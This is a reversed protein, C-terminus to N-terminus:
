CGKSKSPGPPVTSHFEGSRFAALMARVVDIVIPGDACATVHLKGVSSLTRYREGDCAVVGPGEFVITENPSLSAVEEIPLLCSSGPTLSARVFEQEGGLRVVVAGPEDRHIPRLRGAISSLGTSAPQAFTAVIARISAPDHVARAGLFDADILSVEVLALDDDPGGDGRPDDFRLALRKARRSLPHLELRGEAILGAVTGAATADVDVPFVNNTGTSLAILPIDPWGVAVDRCTGDGGLAVVVDAGRDRLVETARITDNRTGTPTMEILEVPCDVNQTARRAISQPDDVLVIQRTGAETAGIVVRKVVDVKHADSTHGAASVLRRIDKGARPNVIVGVTSM